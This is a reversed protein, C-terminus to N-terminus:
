RFIEGAVTVRVRASGTLGEGEEKVTPDFDLLRSRIV